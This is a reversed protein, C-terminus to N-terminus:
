RIKLRWLIAAPLFMAVALMALLGHYGYRGIVLAALMPTTLSPLTNTLNLLGLDRGFHRQNPLQQMAFASHLALFSNSGMMFIAYCGIVAVWSNFLAMGSLGAAVLCLMALLPLKRRNGLDSQRGVALAVPIALLQVGANTWAFTGLTLRGASVERLFYFIFLFLLGEAVQVFLRALWLLFLTRHDPRIEQGSRMSREEMGLAPVRRRAFIPLLCLAVIVMILALQRGLDPPVMAVGIVSLAALAPAFALMGGLSGKQQDGLSDAAFGALPALMLNLSFQWGAVAVIMAAPSNARAIAWTGLATAILGAMSWNLRSRRKTSPWRDSAWGWLVASVSAAIAGVTACLALWHVDDRGAFQSFRIPLLITLFPTYAISGGAWALAYSALFSLSQRPTVGAPSVPRSDHTM